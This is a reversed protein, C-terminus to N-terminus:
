NGPAPWYTPFVKQALTNAWKQSDQYVGKATATSSRWASSVALGLGNLVDKTVGPAVELIGMEKPREVLVKAVWTDLATDSAEYLNWINSMLFERKTNGFYHKGSKLERRAMAHKWAVTRLGQFLVKSAAEEDGMLANFGRGFFFANFFAKVEEPNLGYHKLLDKQMTAQVKLLEKGSEMFDGHFGPGVKIRVVTEQLDINVHANVGKGLVLLPHVEKSYASQFYPKWHKSPAQGKLDKHFSELFLRGFVIVIERVKKPNKYIDKGGASSEIAFRTTEKYICPFIGRLDKGERKGDAPAYYHTLKTLRQYLDGPTELTSPDTLKILDARTLDAAPKEEKKPKSQAQTPSDGDPEVEAQNGESQTEQGATAEGELGEFFDESSVSFTFFLFILVRVWAMFLM